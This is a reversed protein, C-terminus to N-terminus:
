EFAAEVQSLGGPQSYADDGIEIRFGRLQKAAAAVISMIRKAENADNPIVTYRLLTSFTDKSNIPTVRFGTQSDLRIIEAIRTPKAERVYSGPWIDEILVTRKQNSTFYLHEPFDDLNGVEPVWKRTNPHLNVSQILGAIETANERIRLLLKDDGLTKWDRRIMSTVLTTKGGRSPAALIVCCSKREVAGAHIPIWGLSRWSTTLILDVLQDIDALLWEPEANHPVCISWRGSSPSRHGSVGSKCAAYLGSPTADVSM